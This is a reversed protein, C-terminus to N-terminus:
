TDRDIDAIARAIVGRTLKELGDVEDLDIDLNSFANQYDDWTLSSGDFPEIARAFNFTKNTLAQLEGLSFLYSALTSKFFIQGAEPSSQTKLQKMRSNNIQLKWLIKALHEGVDPDAVSICRSFTDKLSEPIEKLESKLSLRQGDQIELAAYAERLLASCSSCYGTLDSLALPLFARAAVFDRERKKNQSYRSIYFGIISSILALVGVNLPQWRDWVDQVDHWDGKSELWPYILMCFFYIVLVGAMWKEMQKILRDISATNIPNM